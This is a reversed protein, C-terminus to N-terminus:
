RKTSRDSIPVIRGIRRRRYTAATGSLQMYSALEHLLISFLVPPCPRDTPSLHRGRRWGDQLWGCTLLDLAHGAPPRHRGPLASDPASQMASGFGQQECRVPGIEAELRRRLCTLNYNDRWQELCLPATKQKNPLCCNTELASRVVRRPTKDEVQEGIDPEPPKKSCMDLAGSGDIKQGTETLM